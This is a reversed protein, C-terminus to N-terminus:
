LDWANSRSSCVCNESIRTTLFTWFSPTHVRVPLLCEPSKGYSLRQFVTDITANIKDPSNPLTFLLCCVKAWNHYDKLDEETVEKTLLPKKPTFNDVTGDEVLAKLAEINFFDTLNGVKNTYVFVAFKCWGPHDRMPLTAPPDGLALLTRNLMNRTEHQNAKIVRNDHKLDTLMKWFGMFSYRPNIEVLEYREEEGSVRFFEIDTASSKFGYGALKECLDHLWKRLVRTLTFDGPTKFAIVGSYTNSPDKLLDGTDAVQLKGDASITVEVQHEAKSKIYPETHLLVVDEWRQAIQFGFRQAWKFYFQQRAEYGNSLPGTRLTEWAARWEEENACMRVGVYFQTDSLKVVVPYEKPPIDLSTSIPQFEPTLYKRMYFKNDCMIVSQFSPGPLKLEETVIAVLVKPFTDYATVAKIRHQRCYTIVEEVFEDAPFSMPKNFDWEKHLIVHYNFTRHDEEKMCTVFPPLPLLVAVDPADNFQDPVVNRDFVDSHLVKVEM